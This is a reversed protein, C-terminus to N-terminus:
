AARPIALPIWLEVRAGRGDANRARIRGGHAEVVRRCLALELGTGAGRSAEFPEFFLEEMGPAMGPGSDHVSIHLERRDERVVVRVEGEPGSQAAANTLLNQLMREVAARDLPWAGPASQGDVVVRAHTGRRVVETVLALPDVNMPAARGLKVYDLLANILTELRVIEGVVTDAKTRQRPAEVQEALLQAHGKASQLPNRLEHAMVAVMEGLRSLHHRRSNEILAVERQRTVRRVVVSGALVLLAGLINIVVGRHATDASRSALTPEFDMVIVPPANEDDARPPGPQREGPHPPSMVIRGFGASSEVRRRLHGIAGRPPLTFLPEGVQALASGDPAFIAAYRLGARRNEDVFDQLVPGMLHPPMGHTRPRLAAELSSAQGEVLLRTTDEIGSHLSWAVSLLLAAAATGAVTIGEQRIWARFERM